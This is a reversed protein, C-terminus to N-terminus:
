GRAMAPAPRAGHRREVLETYIAELADMRADFSLVTEVRARASAAYRRMGAPDDLAARVAEQLAQLDGRAVIRGDIRDRLIEATGGADTAIVPTELAMAELVANPTGEYDSSQVFLDMAHHLDIIDTRHGLLRCRAGLGRAAIQAELAGRLSGDGVILLTLAPHTVRLAAVADILLDFRKQPELRGVAGVVVEDGALGLTGRVVERRGEVRVFARHDIGNLITTVRDAPAGHRILESRIEGSVAVLRPYRALIWKDAPYYVWHERPSHGTWGHVTALPM